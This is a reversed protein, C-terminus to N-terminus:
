SIWLERIVTVIWKNDERRVRYLTGRAFMNGKDYGGELNAENSDVWTIDGVRLIVARVGSPAHHMQAQFQHQTTCESGPRM